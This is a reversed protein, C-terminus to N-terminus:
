KMVAGVILEQCNSEHISVITVMITSWFQKIRIRQKKAHEEGRKYIDKPVDPAFFRSNQITM